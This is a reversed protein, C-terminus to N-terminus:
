QKFTLKFSVTLPNYGTPLDIKLADLSAVSICSAQSIGGKELKFVIHKVVKNETAGDTIELEFDATQENPNENFLFLHVQPVTSCKLVRYSVDIQTKSEGLVTWDKYVVPNTQAGLETFCSVTFLLVLTVILRKM